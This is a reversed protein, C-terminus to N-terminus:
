GPQPDQDLVGAAPLPERAASSALLDPNGHFSGVCHPAASSIEIKRSAFESSIASIYNPRLFENLGAFKHFVFCVVL